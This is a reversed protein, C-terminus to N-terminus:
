VLHLDVRRVLRAPGPDDGERDPSYQPPHLGETLQDVGGHLESVSHLVNDIPSLDHVRRPEGVTTNQNVCAAMVNGLADDLVVQVQHLHVLVVHKVPM